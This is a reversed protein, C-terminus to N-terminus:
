IDLTLLIPCHDSGLIDTLCEAAKIHPDLSRSTVFYDLRWGANTRRGRERYSWWTYVGQTTPHLYRYTDTFGAALLRSFDDREVQSYGQKGENQQPHALDIPEHAVNLDGCLIVPKESALRELTATLAQDFQHRVELRVLEPQSNPAYVTVFWYAGFDCALFRGEESAVADGCTTLTKLPAQKSFIATGSYGKRQAYNWTQVYGPLDLEVQGAQCKIEQVALVDPALEQVTPVFGKGLMARIGNVNWSIFTHM